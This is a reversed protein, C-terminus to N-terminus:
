RPRNGKRHTLAEQLLLRVMNSFTRSETEALGVIEDFLEESVRSHLGVSLEQKPKTSVVKRRTRTM